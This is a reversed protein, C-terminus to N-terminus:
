PGSSHDSNLQILKNENTHTAPFNSFNMFLTKSIVFFINKFFETHTQTGTTTQRAAHIEKAYANTNAHSKTNGCSLQTFIFNIYIFLPCRWCCCPLLLPERRICFILAFLVTFYSYNVTQKQKHPGM